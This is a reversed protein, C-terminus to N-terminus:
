TPDFCGDFTYLLNRLIRGDSAVNTPGGLHGEGRDVAATYCGDTGVSLDYTDRLPIGNPGYWDLTCVWDGAGSTFDARHCAAIVKIDSAPVAPLGLRSLQLPVLHGFTPAVATEIRTSTIPSKGCGSAVFAAAVAAGLWRHIHSGV